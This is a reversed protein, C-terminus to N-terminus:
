CGFGRATAFSISNDKTHMSGLRVFPFTHQEIPINGTQSIFLLRLRSQAAGLSATNLCWHWSTRGNLREQLLHSPLKRKPHVDCLILKPRIGVITAIAYDVDAPEFPQTFILIKAGKQDIPIHNYKQSNIRESPWPYCRNQIGLEGLTSRM